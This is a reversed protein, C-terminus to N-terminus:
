LNGLNSARGGEKAGKKRGERRLVEVVVTGPHVVANSPSVVAVEEEEQQRQADVHNSNKREAEDKDEMVSLAKSGQVGSDRIRKVGIESCSSIQNTQNSILLKQHEQSRVATTTM